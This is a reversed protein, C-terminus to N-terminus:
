PREVKGGRQKIFSSPPKLPHISKKKPAKRTGLTAGATTNPQKGHGNQVPVLNLTTESPKRILRPFPDFSCCCLLDSRQCGGRRLQVRTTEDILPRLLINIPDDL